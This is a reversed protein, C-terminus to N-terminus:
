LWRWGPLYKNKFSNKNIKMWGLPYDEVCLLYWGDSYNGDLEISECKLYRIVDPDDQKLRIVKDYEHAYLANALAQSPEFRQKKMEGLLLGQRLIRLGKLDPLGEPLLYLSDGHVYLLEQRYSIGLLEIFELAEDSIAKNIQNRNKNPRLDTAEYQKNKAAKNKNGYAEDNDTMDKYNAETDARGRKDEKHLLAIFHGEGAIKHPWLRICDALEESVDVGYLEHIWEPKGNDFGKYSLGLQKQREEDPLARVVHFEPYREQLYAITGENEEPSFTCTSYLMYGGPKLMGAAAIIIEKQLKNYYEVGYQEWNRIIAPSKRFMGEGSCPADILIKDFYEPFYDLLKNPAESVVLSNRIGFLEINKLLAKARSNSIDNSVLCGTEKLKAGLETSKGGPAACLDLVRDGERIPLLSAPTMASPEQIYYLGAYYFPHKAPQEDPEYYYGNITWPIRRISIPCIKEFEEPTIKLTNVRLGQYNEDDYCQLYEEYEDGLLMKMRDEFKEPLNM